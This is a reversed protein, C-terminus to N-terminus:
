NIKAKFKAVVLNFLPWRKTQGQPRDNEASIVIRSVVLTSALEGGPVGISESLVSRFCWCCECSDIEFRCRTNIISLGCGVVVVVVM